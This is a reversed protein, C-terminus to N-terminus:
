DTRFSSFEALQALDWADDTTHVQKRFEFLSDDKNFDSCQEVQEEAIRDLEELSQPFTEPDPVDEFSWHYSTPSEDDLKGDQSWDDSEHQYDAHFNMTKDQMTAFATENIQAEPPVASLNHATANKMSSQYVQTVLANRALTFAADAYVM